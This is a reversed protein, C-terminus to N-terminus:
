QRGDIRDGEDKLIKLQGTLLGKIIMTSAISFVWFASVFIPAFIERFPSLYFAIRIVSNSSDMSHFFNVPWLFMSFAIMLSSGLLTGVIWGGTVRMHVLRVGKNVAPIFIVFYVPSVAWLVSYHFRNVEPRLNLATVRDIQPVIGAMFDTFERAWTHKSLIDDPIFFGVFALVAWSILFFRNQEKNGGPPNSSGCVKKLWERMNMRTVTKSKNM